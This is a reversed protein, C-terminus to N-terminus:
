EIEKFLNNKRKKIDKIIVYRTEGSFQYSLVADNEKLFFPFKNQKPPKNNIEKKSDTHLIIDNNVKSTSYNAIIIKNKKLETKVSKGRFYLSDFVIKSKKKLKIEVNIGSVGALGGVWNYYESSEIQLHGIKESKSSGCQLFIYILSLLFVIKIKNM